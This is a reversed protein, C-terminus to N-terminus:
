LEATIKKLLGALESDYESSIYACLVNWIEQEQFSKLSIQRNLLEHQILFNGELALYRSIFAIVVPVCLSNLSSYGRWSRHFYLLSPKLSGVICRVHANDNILGMKISILLLDSPSLRQESFIQISDSILDSSQQPSIRLVAYSNEESSCICQLVKQNAISFLAELYWISTLTQCYFKMIEVHVFGAPPKELKSIVLFIETVITVLNAVAVIIIKYKVVGNPEIIDSSQLINVTKTPGNCFKFDVTEHIPSLCSLFECLSVVLSSVVELINGIKNRSILDNLNVVHEYNWCATITSMCFQHAHPTSIQPCNLLITSNPDINISIDNKLRSLDLELNKEKLQLKILSHSVDTSDGTSSDPNCTQLVNGCSDGLVENESDKGKDIMAKIEFAVKKQFQTCSLKGVEDLKRMCYNDIYQQLQVGQSDTLTKILYLALASVERSCPYLQILHPLSLDFLRKTTDTIYKVAIEITSLMLRRMEVQFKKNFLTVACQVNTEVSFSSQIRLSASSKTKDTSSNLLKLSKLIDSRITESLVWANRVAEAVITEKLHSKIGSYLHELTFRSIQFLQQHQRWFSLELKQKLRNQIDFIGKSRIDISPTRSLGGSLMPSTIPFGSSSIESMGMTFTRQFSPVRILHPSLLSSVNRIDPYSSLTDERMDDLSFQLHQLKALPVVVSTLGDCNTQHVGGNNCDESPIASKMEDQFAVDISSFTFNQQKDFYSSNISSNTYSVPSPCFLARSVNASTPSMVIGTISNLSIDRRLSPTTLDRTASLSRSRNFVKSRRLYRLSQNIFPFLSDGFSNNVFAFNRDDIDGNLQYGFRSAVSFYDFSTCDGIHRKDLVRFQTPLRAAFDELLILILM